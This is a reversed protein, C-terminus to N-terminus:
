CAGFVGARGAPAVARWGALMRPGAPRDARATARARRALLPAPGPPGEARALPRLAEAMAHAEAFGEGPALARALLDQVGTPLRPSVVPRALGLLCAHLVGGVARLDARRAEADSHASTAAGPMALPGLRLRVPGPGDELVINAATVDGHALGQAHWHHLPDLLQLCLRAAGAPPLRGDRSLVEALSEGLPLDMAIWGWAGVLGADHLAVLHPHPLGAATKARALFAARAGPALRHQRIGVLSGDVVDIAALIRGDPTTGVVQRPMFRGGFAPTMIRNTGDQIVPRM